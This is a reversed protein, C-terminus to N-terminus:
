RPAVLNVTIAPLSAGDAGTHENTVKDGYRKPHWKALLKLRTEVRLRSRGIWENDPMEAGDKGIKTDHLTEDAIALADAAIADGGIERAQAIRESLAADDKQWNWVTVTSPMGQERCIWALPEGEALRACIEAVM